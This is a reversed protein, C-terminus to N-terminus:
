RTRRRVALLGAGGGLLLLATVVAALVAAGTSALLGDRAEFTNTLEVLAVGPETTGALGVVPVRTGQSTTVLGDVTVVASVHAAGGTATETVVCDSGVPLGSWTTRLSAPAHLVRQAGGPVDLAVDDGDVPWTCALEVTFPGQAGDVSTDGAVHKVLEVSTLDFTNTATVVATSVTEGAAPAAVTVTGDAPALASRTAGGTAVEEVTCSTGAPFTGFTRVAGATLDFREDLVTSGRYTCVATFGFTARAGWTAAGDGDVEKRVELVGADFGNVVEVAAGATGVTVEASDTGTPVVGTGVLTVRDADADGTETLVCTARVPVTSAPVTFTEGDLLDFTLVPSGSFLVQTGTVAATCTLSFSFPGTVGTTAETDVRKTVSLTGFEYTNTVTAVQATPVSGDAAAPM